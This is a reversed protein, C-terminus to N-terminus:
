MVVFLLILLVFLGLLIGFLVKGTKKQKETTPKGAEQKRDHEMLNVERAMNQMLNDGRQPYGM